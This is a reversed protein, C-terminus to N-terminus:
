HKRRIILGAAGVLASGLALLSGPEPVDPGTTRGTFFPYQSEPFSTGAADARVEGDKSISSIAWLGVSEAPMLGRDDGGDVDQWYIRPNTGNITAVWGSSIYNGSTDKVAKISQRSVMVDLPTVPWTVEFMKLGNGEVPMYAINTILYSYLFGTTDLGTIQRTWENNYVTQQVKIVLKGANENLKSTPPNFWVAGDTLWFSVDESLVGSTTGQSFAGSGIILLVMVSLLIYKIPRM